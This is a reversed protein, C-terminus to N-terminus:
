ALPSIAPLAIPHRIHGAGGRFSAERTAAIVCRLATLATCHPEARHGPVPVRLAGIDVAAGSVRSYGRQDTTLGFQAALSNSGANTAPSTYPVISMTQTAGGNSALANLHPNLPGTGGGDIYGVKDTALWNVLGGELNHYAIGVLNHGLSDTTGTNFADSFAYNASGCTNNAVITNGINLTGSRTDFGGGAGTAYNSAITCNIVTTTGGDVVLGGGVADAQGSLGASNGAITSNLITSTGTTYIGAGEAGYVAGTLLTNFSITSAKVTLTGRNEVGAGYDSAGKDTVANGTLTTGILTAKGLNFLGGGGVVTTSPASPSLDVNNGAVSSYSLSLNGRNYIAGGGNNGSADHGFATNHKFTTGTVSANGFNMLGAGGGYQGAVLSSAAVNNILIDNNLNVTGFNLVGGGFNPGPNGNEITLGNVTVISPSGSIELVRSLNSGSVALQSAGPGAISVSDSIALQGSTLPITGNLGAAFTITDAGAHANANLVAQRLSGAGHDALNAVIYTSFLTRDELPETLPRQRSKSSRDHRHSQKLM